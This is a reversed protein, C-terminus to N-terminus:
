GYLLREVREYPKPFIDYYERDRVAACICKGVERGCFREIFWRYISLQGTVYGRKFVGKKVDYIDLWGGKYYYEHKEENFDVGSALVLKM